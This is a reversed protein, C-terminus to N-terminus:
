PGHAEADLQSRKDTFYPSKEREPPPTCGSHLERKRVRKEVIECCGEYENFKTIRCSLTIPIANKLKM